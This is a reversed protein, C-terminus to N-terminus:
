YAQTIGQNMWPGGAPWSADFTENFALTRCPPVLFRELTALVLTLDPTEGSDLRIKRVFAAWQARKTRDDGFRATLATPAETPLAVGRRNFTARLAASLSKGEFSFHSALIWLDHFDKLRTNPMGLSVLAEFKEAIVTERPYVRVQPEPQDRLLAPFAVEM